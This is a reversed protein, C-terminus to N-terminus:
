PTALTGPKCDSSGPPRRPRALGPGTEGPVARGPADGRGVWCGRKNSKALRWSSGSSAVNGHHCHSGLGGRRRDSHAAADQLATTLWWSCNAAAISSTTPTARRECDKNRAAYSRLKQRVMNVADGMDDDFRLELQPARNEGEYSYRYSIVKWNGPEVSTKRWQDDPGWRYQSNITGGTETGVCTLSFQTGAAHANTTAGSAAALAVLLPLLFRYMRARLPRSPPCTCAPM